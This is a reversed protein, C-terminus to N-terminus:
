CMLAKVAGKMFHTLVAINAKTHLPPQHDAVYTAGPNCLLVKSFGLANLHALCHQSHPVQSHLVKAAASVLM